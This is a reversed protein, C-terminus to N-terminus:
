QSEPSERVGPNAVRSRSPLVEDLARETRVARKLHHVLRARAVLHLGLDLLVSVSTVRADAALGSRTGDQHEAEVSGAMDGRQRNPVVLRSVHPLQLASGPRAAPGGR